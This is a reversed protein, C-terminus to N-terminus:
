VLENQVENIIEILNEALNIKQRIQKAAKKPLFEFHHTDKRASSYTGGWRFGHKAFIKAIENDNLPGGVFEYLSIAETGRDLSKELYQKYTQGDANKFNYYRQFDKKNRLAERVGNLSLKGGDSNPNVYTDLDIAAGWAHASFGSKTGKFAVSGAHTLPLGYKARSERIAKKLFPAVHKNVRIKGPEDSLYGIPADVLILNEAAWRPDVKANNRGSTTGTYPIHGLMNAIENTYRSSSATSKWKGTPM